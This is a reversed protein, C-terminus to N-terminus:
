VALPTPWTINVAVLGYKWPQHFNSAAMVPPSLRIMNEGLSLLDIDSSEASKVNFM